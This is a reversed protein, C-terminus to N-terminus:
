NFVAEYRHGLQDPGIPVLFIEATGLAPQHVRYIQQPFVENRAGRFVLSFPARDPAKAGALTRDPLPTVQILEVDVARDETVQMTFKQGVLPVFMEHTFTDLM